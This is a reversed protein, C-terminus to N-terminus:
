WKASIMHFDDYTKKKNKISWRSEHHKVSTAEAIDIEQLTVNCM